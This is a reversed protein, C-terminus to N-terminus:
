VTGRRLGKPACHARSSNLFNVNRLLMEMTPKKQILSLLSEIKFPNPASLAFNWKAETSKKMIGPVLVEIGSSKRVGTAVILGKM